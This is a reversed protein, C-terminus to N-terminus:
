APSAQWRFGPSAQVEGLKARYVLKNEIVRQVYNRTESFPILEIWDLMAVSSNRPDGNATLWEDVRAPGANYAAIALPEAGAYRDILGHLYGAGLAMNYAPDATLAPISVALGMKRAEQMATRPMLQMLGRAGAPSVVATDFSSEQRVIGLALAPDLGANRSVEAAKPWGADLLVTGSRGALRAVMVATEPLGFSNALHAALALDAPDPSLEAARLLFAAARHKDGCGVLYTAARVLEHSAFAAAQGDSWNPDHQSLIRAAFAASDPNVAM